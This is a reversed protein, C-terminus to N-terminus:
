IVRGQRKAEADKRAGYMMGILMGVGIGISL